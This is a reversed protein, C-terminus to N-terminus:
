ETEFNLFETQTFTEFDFMFFSDDAELEGDETEVTGKVEYHGPGLKGLYIEGDDNATYTDDLFEVEAGPETVLTVDYTRVRIIYEGEEKDIYFPSVKTVDDYLDYAKNKDGDADYHQGQAALVGMLEANEDDNDNLMTVVNAADDVTWYVDDDAVSNEYLGEGDDKEIYDRFESVLMTASDENSCGVIFVFTMFILAMGLSYQTLKKM